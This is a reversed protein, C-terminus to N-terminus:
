NNTWNSVSRFVGTSGGFINIGEQVSVARTGKKTCNQIQPTRASDFIRSSGKTHRMGIKNEQCSKKKKIYDLSKTKNRLGQPSSSQSKSPNALQVTIKNQRPVNRDRNCNEKDSDSTSYMKNLGSQSTKSRSPRLAFESNQFSALGFNPVSTTLKMADLKEYRSILSALRHSRTQLPSASTDRSKNQISIIDGTVKYVRFQPRKELGSLDEQRKIGIDKDTQSM